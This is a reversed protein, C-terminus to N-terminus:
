RQYHLIRGRPFSAELLSITPRSQSHTYGLTEMKKTYRAAHGRGPDVIIVECHLEAHQDIFDALLDAHNREYLLDSGIILNFKGLGSDEDAWGTRVFPIAGARVFLLSLFIAMLSPILFYLGGM